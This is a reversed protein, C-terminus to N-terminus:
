KSKMGGKGDSGTMEHGGKMGRMMQMGTEMMKEHEQMLSKREEPTKANMIKHMQEHMRLMNEQMKTMQKQDDNDMMTATATKGGSSMHQEEAGALSTTLPLAILTAILLAKKM